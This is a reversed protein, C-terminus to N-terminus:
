AMERADTLFRVARAVLSPDRLMRRHGLGAVPELMSGPWAQALAVSEAYPMERDEPTLALRRPHTLGHCIQEPTPM